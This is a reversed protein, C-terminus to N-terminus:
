QRYRVIDLLGIKIRIKRKINDSVILWNQTFSKKKKKGLGVSEQKNEM